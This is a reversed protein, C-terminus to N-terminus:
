ETTAKTLELKISANETQLSQVREDAAQRKSGQIDKIDKSLISVNKESRCALYFFIYWCFNFVPLMEFLKVSLAGKSKTDRHSAVLDHRIYLTM